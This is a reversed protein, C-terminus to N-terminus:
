IFRFFFTNQFYSNKKEVKMPKKEKGIGFCVNPYHYNFKRVKEVM